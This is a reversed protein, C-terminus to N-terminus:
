KAEPAHSTRVLAATSANSCVTFTWTYPELWSWDVHVHKSPSRRRPQSVTVQLGAPVGCHCCDSRCMQRSRGTQEPVFTTGCVESQRMCCVSLIISGAQCSGSRLRMALSHLWWASVSVAQAFIPSRTPPLGFHLRYSSETPRSAAARCGLRWPYRGRGSLQPARLPGEMPITGLSRTSHSAILGAAALARKSQPPGSPMISRVYEQTTADAIAATRTWFRAVRSGRWHSLRSRVTTHSIRSRVGICYLEM